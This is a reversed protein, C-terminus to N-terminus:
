GETSNLDKLTNIEKGNVDLFKVSVINMRSSDDYIENIEDKNFSVLEPYIVMFYDDKNIKQEFTKGKINIVVKEADNNKGYIITSMKNDNPDNNSESYIWDQRYGYKDNEIFSYAMYSDIYRNMIFKNIQKVEIGFESKILYFKSDNFEKIQLIDKSDCNFAKQALEENSLESSMTQNYFTYIYSMVAVVCVIFIGKFSKKFINKTQFDRVKDVKEKMKIKIIIMEFIKFCLFGAIAGLTNYIIDDIDCVNSGVFLQTIEIALSSLFGVKIVKKYNNFKDFLLPIFFGLPMFAIINGIINRISNMAGAESHTFTAITEKIPVFNIIGFLGYEKYMYENSLNRITIMGGKFITLLLLYLFYVFFIFLIIERCLNVKKNKIKLIIRYMIWIVISIISVLIFNSEIM